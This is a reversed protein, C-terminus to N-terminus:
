SPHHQSPLLFIVRATADTTVSASRGWPNRTVSWRSPQYDVPQQNSDLRPLGGGYNDRNQSGAIRRTVDIHGSILEDMDHAFMMGLRRVEALRWDSRDLRRYFTRPHMAIRRAVADLSMDHASALAKISPSVASTDEDGVPQTSMVETDM